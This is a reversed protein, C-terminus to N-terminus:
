AVAYDMFKRMFPSYFALVIDEKPVGQAEIDSVIDYDSANHQAWIKGDRIDFHFVVYYVRNRGQWGVRMVQYHDNVPDILLQTDAGKNLSQGASVYATLVDKIIRRYQDLKEM